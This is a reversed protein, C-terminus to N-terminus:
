YETPLIMRVDTGEHALYFVWEGPPMDTYTILRKWSVDGDHKEMLLLAQDDKGVVVYVIGLDGCDLHKPCETALIDLLWHCGADACEKVGDSYQFARNLPHRYFGNAGNRSEAYAAKFKDVDM